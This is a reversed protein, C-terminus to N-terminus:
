VWGYDEIKLFIVVCFTNLKKCSLSVGGDGGMKYTTFQYFIRINPYIHHEM